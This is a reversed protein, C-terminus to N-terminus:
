RMTPEHTSVAVAEAVVCDVRERESDSQLGRRETPRAPALKLAKEHFQHLENRIPKADGGGSPESLRPSVHGIATTLQLTVQRFDRSAMLQTTFYISQNRLCPKRAGAFAFCIAEAGRVGNGLIQHLETRILKANGSLALCQPM